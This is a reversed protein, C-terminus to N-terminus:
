GRRVPQRIITKLRAPDVRRPDGLYIERHEGTKLFGEAEIFAHLRAITPPETAYPGVHLIQAAEQAPQREFRLRSCAALGPKKRRAAEIAAAAEEEGVEWPQVIRLTWTWEGKREVSFTSLDASRWDGEAPMVGWDLGRAKKLAFKLGYAAAYLAGMLEQFKAEENPDGEGELAFSALEPVRVLSPEGSATYLERYRQKLDIKGAM